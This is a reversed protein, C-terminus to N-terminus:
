RRARRCAAPASTSRSGRRSGRRTATTARHRDRHPQARPPRDPRPLAPRRHGLGADAADAALAVQQRGAPLAYVPFTMAGLHEIAGGPVDTFSRLVQPDAVSYVVVHGSWSFPLARDLQAIGARVTAMVTPATALTAADFIGLVGGSRRVHIATLDWPAPSGLLLRAGSASRDSVIVARGGSLSFVFGVTRQVPEADYSALQISQTVEPIAVGSGWSRLLRQDPWQDAQVRYGFAQLPLQVLDAYYRRQRAMLGRDAHDLDRLFLRPRHERVARARTDLVRQELTRVQQADLGGVAAGVPHAPAVAHGGCGTLALLVGAALFAATSRRVGSWRSGSTLATATTSRPSTRWSAARSRRPPSGSASSSRTASPM